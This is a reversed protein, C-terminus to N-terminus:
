SPPHLNYLLTLTNITKTCNNNCWWLLTHINFIRMHLICSITVLISANSKVWFNRTILGITKAQNTSKWSIPHSKQIRYVHTYELLSCTCNCGLSCQLHLLESTPFIIEVMLTNAPSVHCVVPINWFCTFSFKASM